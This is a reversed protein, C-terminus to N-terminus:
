MLASTGLIPILIQWDIAVTGDPWLGTPVLTWGLPLIWFKRLTFNEDEGWSM